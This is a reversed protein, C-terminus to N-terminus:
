HYPYTTAALPHTGLTTEGNPSVSFQTFYNVPRLSCWLLPSLRRDLLEVDYGSDLLMKAASLGALGGGCIVVKKRLIDDTYTTFSPRSNSVTTM